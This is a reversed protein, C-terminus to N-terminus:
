KVVLVIGKGFKEYDYKKQNVKLHYILTKTKRSRKPMNVFFMMGGKNLNKFAEEFVDVINKSEMALFFDYKTKSAKVKALKILSTTEYESTGISSFTKYSNRIISNIAFELEADGLPNNSKEKADWLLQGSEKRDLAKSELEKIHQPTHDNKIKNIKQRMVVFAVVMIILAVLISAALGWWLGKSM